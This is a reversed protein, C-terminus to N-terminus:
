VIRRYSSIPLHEDEDEDELNFMSDVNQQIILDSEEARRQRAMFQRSSNNALQAWQQLLPWSFRAVFVLAVSLVVSGVIALFLIWTPAYHWSSECLQTPDTKPTPDKFV